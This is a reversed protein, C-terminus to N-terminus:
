AVLEARQQRPAIQPYIGMPLRPAWRTKATDYVHGSRSNSVGLPLEDPEGLGGTGM